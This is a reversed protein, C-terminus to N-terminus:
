GNEELKHFQTPQSVVTALNTMQQQYPACNSPKNGPAIWCLNSSSPPSHAAVEAASLAPAALFVLTLRTTDPGLFVDCLQQPRLHLGTQQQAFQVATEWPAMLGATQGGPLQWTSQEDPRHWLYAGAENQVLLYTHVDWTPPAQYPPKGQWARKVDMWRYIVNRLVFLSAKNFTSVSHKFFLPREEAHNLTKGVRERHFSSMRRPLPNSSFFGVVPSEESTTIEGGRLLCRFAFGLYGTPPLPLFTVAALRVPLVILGTEERVERAAADPLHEGADVGGGPPAYTRTDNRKILLVNGHQDVVIGNTGINM